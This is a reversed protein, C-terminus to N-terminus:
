NRSLPKWCLHGMSCTHALPKTELLRHRLPPITPNSEDAWSLTCVQLEGPIKKGALRCDTNIEKLTIYFVCCIHPLQQLSPLVLCSVQQFKCITQSLHVCCWTEHFCHIPCKGSEAFFSDKYNTNWRFKIQGRTKNGLNQSGSSQKKWDRWVENGKFYIKLRCNKNILQWTYFSIQNLTFCLQSISCLQLIADIAFASCSTKSECEFFIFCGLRNFTSSANPCRFACM